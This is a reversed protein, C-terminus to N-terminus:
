ASLPSSKGRRSTWLFGIVSMLTAVSIAAGLLFTMPRYIFDVRHDGPELFVARFAYNARYIRREDGDVYAKWGPYYSESMFLFKPRALSVELSVSNNHYELVEVREERERHGVTDAGSPIQEPEEEL